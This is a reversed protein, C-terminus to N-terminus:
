AIPVIHASDGVVRSTVGSSRNVMRGKAGRWRRLGAVDGATKDKVEGAKM